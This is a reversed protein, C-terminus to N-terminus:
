LMKVAEIITNIKEDYLQAAESDVFGYGFDILEQLKIVISDKFIKKSDEKSAKNQTLALGYEKLNIGNEKAYKLDIKQVILNDHKSLLEIAEKNNFRIANTLATYCLDNAANINIGDKELLLKVLWNTSKEECAISLPADLTIDTLNISEVHYEILTKILRAVNASILTDFDSKTQEQYLYILCNLLTEGFGDETSCDFMSHKVIAEALSYNGDNLAMFIPLKDKHCYNVNLSPNDNILEIAEENKGNIILEHLLLEKENM